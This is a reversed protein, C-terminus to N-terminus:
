SVADEATAAGAARPPAVARLEECAVRRHLRPPAELELEAVLELGARRKAAEWQETVHAWHDESAVFIRAPGGGCCWSAAM